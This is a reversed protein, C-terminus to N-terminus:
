DLLIHSPGAGRSPPLQKQGMELGGKQGTCWVQHTEEIGKVLCTNEMQWMLFGPSDVSWALPSSGRFERGFAGWGMELTQVCPQSPLHSPRWSGLISFPAQGSLTHINEPAATVLPWLSLAKPCCCHAKPTRPARLRLNPTLLGVGGRASPLIQQLGREAEWLEKAQPLVTGSKM